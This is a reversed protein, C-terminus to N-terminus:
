RRSDEGQPWPRVLRFGTTVSRHDPKNAFRAALRQGAELDLASGGRVMRYAGEGLALPDLRPGLLPRRVYANACWERVNGAADWAGFPSRDGAAAGVAQVAPRTPASEVAVTWTPDYHDGWPFARGDVGRALKEWEQDHPLRWPQGCRASWWRAFAQASEQSILTIPHHPGSPQRVVEAPIAYLGRGDRRHLPALGAAPDRALHPEPDPLANLFEVYLSQTVPAAMAVFADVWLSQLALSDMAARDGGSWFWGGPVLLEGALLAGLRPMVLLDPALAGPPIREAHAGRALSLPLDVPHLGPGRLELLYSGHPLSVSELPTMGLPLAAGPLLRRGRPAYPRAVVSVGPPDTFLSLAALGDLLRAHRGRDHAQLLFRYVPAEPSRLAEARLLGEAYRDALALHAEPLEPELNLAARLAQEQELAKLRAQDGLAQAEDQRAWGPEKRWVPDSPLLGGLLADADAKARDAAGQLAAAAEGLAAAEDVLALAQERRRAGDLWAFLERVLAGADAFRDRPDLAMARVCLADLAPPIPPHDAGVCARPSPLPGARLCRDLRQRDGEFAPRGVLLAHLTAGLSYIDAPPGIAQLEGRLQEPPMTSLSGLAQGAHTLSPDGDGADPDAPLAGEGALHALGWDMVQVEGFRGVMVNQPKLDRHVVGQAHAYAVAECCRAFADILRRFTWGEADVGWGQPGSAAHLAAAVEDLRRGQVEKMTMWRRGDADQGSDYVPLIGPHELRAAVRVERAFRAQAREAQPLDGRVRKMAVVRELRRDYVRRVEGMGGQAILGRDEYRPDLRAPAAQAGVGAEGLDLTEGTM